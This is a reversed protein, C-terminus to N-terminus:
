DNNSAVNNCSSSGGGGCGYGGSQPEETLKKVAKL